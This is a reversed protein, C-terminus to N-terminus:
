QAPLTYTSSQPAAGPSTAGVIRILRLAGSPEARFPVLWADGVSGGTYPTITPDTFSAIPTLNSPDDKNLSVVAWDRWSGSGASTEGSNYIYHDAAGRAFVELTGTATNLLAAPAGTATFSGVPTWTAPFSGDNAQAKTVISGDGQRIVVQAHFGPKMIAAPRDSVGAGGLDSWGPLVGNDYTATSVTGSGTTAFLRLGTATTVVTPTGVFGTTDGIQQWYQASGSQPRAWMTGAADVAFAVLSNDPAVGVTPPSTFTGGLNVFTTSWVPSPDITQLKTRVGTDASLVSAQLKRDSRVTVSPQGVIEQNGSIVSWVVNDFDTVSSQYGAHLLGQRDSYFYELGGPETSNVPSPLQAAVMPAWATPDLLASRAFWGEVDIAVDIAMSSVNKVKITNDAGPSIMLLSSEASSVATTGPQAYDPDWARLSIAAGDAAVVHLEAAVASTGNDVSPIGDLGAIQIARTENAALQTHDRSDYVRAALPNFLAGGSALSFYGQLDVVVDLPGGSVLYLSFQGLSNVPVTLGITTNQGDGFNVSPFSPRTSGTAYPIYRGDTPANIVTVEVFVSSAEGAPVQGTHTADVTLTGANAVKTQGTWRTDVLRTNSVPVFGGSRAGAGSAFYGQLDLM